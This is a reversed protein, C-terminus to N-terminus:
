DNKKEGDAKDGAVEPEAAEGDGEAASNESAGVDGGAALEAAAGEASAEGGSQGAAHKEALRREAAALKEEFARRKAVDEESPQSSLCMLLVLGVSALLGIPMGFTWVLSFATKLARDQWPKDGPLLEAEASRWGGLVWAEMVELRRPGEYTCARGEAILKLTPFGDIDWQDMLWREATADVKAIHAKGELKEALREWVPALTKCHGCWPAYFKVFWPSEEGRGVREDFDASTLQVVKSGGAGEDGAAGEAFAVLTALALAAAGGARRRLSPAAALM